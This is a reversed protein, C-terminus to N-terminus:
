RKVLKEMKLLKGNKDLLKALHIGALLAELGERIIESDSIIRKKLIEQGITNFLNLQM